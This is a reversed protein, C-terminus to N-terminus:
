KKRNLESRGECLVTYESTLFFIGLGAVRPTLILKATQGVVTRDDDISVYNNRKKFYLKEGIVCPKSPLSIIKLALANMFRIGKQFFTLCSAGSNKNHSHQLWFKDLIQILYKYNNSHCKAEFIHIYSMM